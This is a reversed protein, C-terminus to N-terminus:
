QKIQHAIIPYLRYDPLKIIIIIFLYNPKSLIVPIKCYLYLTRKRGDVLTNSSDRGRNDKTLISILSNLM